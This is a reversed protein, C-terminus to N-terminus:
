DDLVVSYTVKSCIITGLSKRQQHQIQNAFAKHKVRWEKWVMNAEIKSMNSTDPKQPEGAILHHGVTAKTTSCNYGLDKLDEKNDDKFLEDDSYGGTDEELLFDERPYEKSLPSCVGRNDNNAPLKQDLRGNDEVNSLLDDFSPESTGSGCHSVNSDFLHCCGAVALGEYELPDKLQDVSFDNGTALTAEVNDAAAVAANDPASEAEAPALKEKLIVSDWAL